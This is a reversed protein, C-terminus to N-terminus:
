REPVQGGNGAKALFGPSLFPSIITIGDVADAPPESPLPIGEDLGNLLGRLRFGDPAEWWIAELQKAIDNADERSASRALTAGLTGVGPLRVRGKARKESGDLMVGADSIKHDPSTGAGSGYSGDRKGKRVITPSSPLKPTGVASANM